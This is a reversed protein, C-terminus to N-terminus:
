FLEPLAWRNLQLAEFIIVDSVPHIECVNQHCFIGVRLKKLYWRKFVPVTLNIGILM